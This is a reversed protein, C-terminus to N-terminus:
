VFACLCLFPCNKPLNRKKRQTKAGKHPLFQPFKHNKDKLYNELPEVLDFEHWKEEIKISESIQLCM